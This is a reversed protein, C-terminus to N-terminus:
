RARNQAEPAELAPMGFRRLRHFLQALRRLRGQATTALERKRPAVRRLRRAEAHHGTVTLDPVEPAQEARLEVAAEALREDLGEQLLADGRERHALAQGVDLERVHDLHEETRVHVLLQALLQEALGETM